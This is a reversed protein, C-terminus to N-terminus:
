DVEFAMSRLGTANGASDTARVELRYAGPALNELPLKLGLPVVPSGAKVEPVAGSADVKAVGTKSDVIKLQMQVHPPNAEVLLPDYIEVYFAGPEGKKFHDSGSPVFEFGRSVLPTRDELFAADLLDADQSVPYIEKSFAVGSMAIQKGDYPDIVLPMELKAFKETGCAFVVKLDYTGPVAAFQHNYHLPNKSFEEVEKQSELELPVTDSFRAGVTGDPKYALGLVDISATFKGKQKSFSVTGPPMEIALEIRALNATTYFYPARISAATIDGASEGRARAELLKEVPKGELPDAVKVNCYGSRSRVETGGRDVKVRLTHCSGEASVAPTYGLVYYEAQEKAIKEMGDLLANSNKILFGGTGLALAELVDDNNTTRPIVPLLQRPPTTLRNYRDTPVYRGGTGAGVRSGGGHTGGGVTGGGPRGGGVGRGGGGGARQGDGNVYVLQPADSYHVTASVLRPTAWASPTELRSTVSPHPLDTLGRVDIPYIAVNAKNCADIAAVLEYQQEHPLSFGSSLLIVSKRGPVAALQKALSRVGLLLTRAAFDAQANILAPSGLTAVRAPEQNGVVSAFKVDKVVQKLREADGTFNQAVNITGGFDMVAMYRNLGANAAIFKTAAERARIQEAASMSSNDFLLVLYRAQDRPPLASSGFSFTKISQEKDDEWVRFDKQTLDPIYNGKKDTVVADVLVLRSEAKIVPIQGATAQPQSLSQQQAVAFSVWTTVVLVGVLLVGSRANM